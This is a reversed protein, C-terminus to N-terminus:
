DMYHGVVNGSVTIAADPFRSRAFAEAEALTAFQSAVAQYNKVVEYKVVKMEPILCEAALGTFRWGRVSVEDQKKTIEGALAKKILSSAKSKSTDFPMAEGTLSAFYARQKPTARFQSPTRNM